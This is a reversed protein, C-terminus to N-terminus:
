VYGWLGRVSVEGAYVAEVIGDEKRVLLEGKDNIGLAVGEYEGNPDLVKVTNGRNALKQEYAAKMFELAGEKLFLNYLGSFRRLVAGLLKQRDVDAGLEGRLSGAYALGEQVFRTQNVNIGVGVIVHKIKAIEVQMETLIGCIKKGHLVIDNPWKIQCETHCVEEIGEAVAQAMVLTLMSAQEPKFDPKLLVSFYLNEGPESVWNRGRRGRGATQADAVIVSGHFLEDTRRAAELNTSDIEQLYILKYDM